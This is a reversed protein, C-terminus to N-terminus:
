HKHEESNLQDNIVNLKSIMDDLHIRQKKIQRPRFYFWNLLIWAFTVGYTLAAGAATMRVAYEYMYLSIGITLLIFYVSLVTTQLFTEKKSITMLHRLYDSNSQASDINRYLSFSKNHLLLSMAMAAIVLVIGIKTSLFEPQYYIWIFLIFMSTTILLLNMKIIRRRNKRQFRNVKELMVEHSPPPTTQKAWLSKLNIGSNEM